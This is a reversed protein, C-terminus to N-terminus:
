ATPRNSRGQPPTKRAAETDADAAKTKETASGAAKPKDDTKETASVADKTKDDSKAKDANADTKADAKARAKAAEATLSAERKEAAKVVEERDKDSVPDASYGSPLDVGAAELHKALRTKSDPDTGPAPAALIRARVKDIEAQPSLDERDESM